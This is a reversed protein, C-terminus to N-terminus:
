GSILSLTNLQNNCNQLYLKLPKKNLHGKSVEMFQAGQIYLDECEALLQIQLELSFSNKCINCKTQKSLKAKRDPYSFLGPCNTTLCKLRCRNHLKDLIPWDEQCANCQCKFWYRSSLNRQRTGLNQKTFIPGYNEAIVQGAQHPRITNFILHTGNFHRTVSPYCEHNFLAGVEYIGVGIYNIRSKQFKHVKNSVTEYIEHANFQIAQM